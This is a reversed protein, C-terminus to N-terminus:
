QSLRLQKVLLRRFRDGDYRKQEKSAKVEIVHDFNGSSHMGYATMSHHTSFHMM